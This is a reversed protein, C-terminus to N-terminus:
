FNQHQQHDVVDGAKGRAKDTGPKKLLWAEWKDVAARKEKLNDYRDYHRASVDGAAHNQLLDRETKSLGAQGALTKWTRRLDRPSFQELGHAAAYRYLSNKTTVAPVPVSADRRAPFMFQHGLSSRRDLIEAVEAVVPICHPQGNKTKAWAVVSGDWQDVRMHQIELVRQGTLMICRVVDRSQCERSWSLLAMFEDPRLWRQGARQSETDRPIAAAPNRTLGWDRSEAVRYDNGAKMGWEFAARMFMRAKDAQARSGRAYIPRLVAVIDQPTVDAVPKSIAEGAPILIRSASHMSSRGALTQLYSQFLDLTTTPM